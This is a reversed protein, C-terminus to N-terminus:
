EDAADSTYLLCAKNGGPPSVVASANTFGIGIMGANAIQETFYGLSTCTHAHCVAFACTGAEKATEVALTLGKAFAPQAFGFRADSM